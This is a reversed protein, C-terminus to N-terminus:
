YKVSVKRTLTHIIEVSIYKDFIESTGTKMRLLKNAVWEFEKKRGSAKSRLLEPDTIIM